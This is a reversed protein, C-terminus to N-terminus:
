VPRAICCRVCAFQNMKGKTNSALQTFVGVSLLLDLKSANHTRTRHSNPRLSGLIRNLTRSAFFLQELIDIAPYIQLPYTFVVAIVLVIQVLLSVVGSVLAHILTSAARGNKQTPFRYEVSVVVCPRCPLEHM